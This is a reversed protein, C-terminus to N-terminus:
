EIKRFIEVFRRIRASHIWKGVQAGKLEAPADKGGIKFLEDIIEQAATPSIMLYSVVFLLARGNMWGFAKTM